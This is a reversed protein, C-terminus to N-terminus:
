KCCELWWVEEGKIDNNENKVHVSTFLTIKVTKCQKINEELQNQGLFSHQSWQFM